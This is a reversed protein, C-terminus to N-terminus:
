PASANPKGTQRPRNIAAAACAAGFGNDINVVTLGSSCSNLMTLLASVGGFATGYGTSTPVGIVPRDVLGAIVGALAGEMGAVAIIVEAAMLRERVALIRHLGAVGVDLILDTRNNLLTATALAEHAVPLDSTGACVVAIVGRGKDMFRNSRIVLVRGSADYHRSPIVIGKLEAEELGREVESAKNPDLRTVLINSQNRAMALTIEVIQHATKGEGYIVEPLGTRLERHHDVRAVGIDEFPLNNLRGMAQEVDIDGEKLSLLLLRLANRDM